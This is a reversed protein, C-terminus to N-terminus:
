VQQRMDIVNNYNKDVTSQWDYIYNVVNERMLSYELTSNADYTGGEEWQEAVVLEAARNWYNTTFAWLTTDAPMLSSIYNLSVDMNRMWEEGYIQRLQEYISEQSGSPDNPPALRDVIFYASVCIIAIAVVALIGIGYEPDGEVLSEDSEMARLLNSLEDDQEVVDVPEGAIAPSCVAVAVVLVVSFIAFLRTSRVDM